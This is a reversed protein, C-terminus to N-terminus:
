LFIKIRLGVIIFALCCKVEVWFGFVWVRVLVVFSGLYGAGWLRVTFGGRKYLRSPIVKFKYGSQSNVGFRYVVPM